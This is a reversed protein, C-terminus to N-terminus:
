PEPDQTTLNYTFHYDIYLEELEKESYCPIEEATRNKFLYYDEEEDEEEIEATRNKLLYNDEEEDEEEILKSNESVAYDQPDPSPVGGDFHHLAPSRAARQEEDYCKMLSGILHETQEPSYPSPKPIERLMAEVEHRRELLLVVREGCKPGVQEGPAAFARRVYPHADDGVCLVEDTCNLPTFKPDDWLLRQPWECLRLAGYVLCMARIVCFKKLAMEDPNDIPPDVLQVMEPGEQEAEAPDGFLLSTFVTGRGEARLHPPIPVYSKETREAPATEAGSQRWREEEADDVEQQAQRQIEADGDGILIRPDEDDGVPLTWGGHWRELETLGEPEGALTANLQRRLGEMSLNGMAARVAGAEGDPGSLNKGAFHEAWTRAVGIMEATTNHEASFNTQDAGVFHDMVTRRKEVEEDWVGRWDEDGFTRMRARQEAEYWLDGGGIASDPARAAQRSALITAKLSEPASRALSELLGDGLPEGTWMWLGPAYAELYTDFDERDIPPNALEAVSRPPPHFAQAIVDETSRLAEEVADAHAKAGGNASDVAMLAQVKESLEMLLRREAGCREDGCACDVREEDDQDVAACFTPPVGRLIRRDFLVYAYNSMLLADNPDLTYAEALM